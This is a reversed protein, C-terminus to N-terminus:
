GGESGQGTVNQGCQADVEARLVNEVWAGFESCYDVHDGFELRARTLVQAAFDPTTAREAAHHTVLDQVYARIEEILLHQAQADERAAHRVLESIRCAEYDM